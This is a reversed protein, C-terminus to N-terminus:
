IEHKNDGVTVLQLLAYFEEEDELLNLLDYVIGEAKCILMKRDYESEKDASVYSNALRLINIHDSKLSM